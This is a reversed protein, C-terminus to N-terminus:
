VRWDNDCTAREASPLGEFADTPQPWDPNPALLAEVRAAFPVSVAEFGAKRDTM